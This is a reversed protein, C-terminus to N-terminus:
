LGNVNGKMIGIYSADNAVPLTVGVSNTIVPVSSKTITSTDASSDMFVWAMDPLSELGVAVKLIALADASTVRGDNNIDAAIFQYPSVEGSSNPNLGVAIKLAALADASTIPRTGADIAEAKSFVLHADGSSLNSEVSFSGDTNVSDSGQQQDNIDTIAVTINKISNGLWDALTGQISGGKAEAFGLTLSVVGNRQGDADNPGGDEILLRICTAGTNLGALYSSSSLAPCNGKTDVVSAITNLENEIFDGWQADVIRRMVVTSSLVQEMPVMTSFLTAVGTVPLEIEVDLISNYTYNSDAPGSAAIVEDLTLEFPSLAQRALNGMILSSGPESQYAMTIDSDGIINAEAYIDNSNSIGDNDADLPRPESTVEIVAERNFVEDTFDSDIVGVGLRYFGDVLSSPDFTVTKGSSVTSLTLTNDTYSWDYIHDGNVDKVGATVTVTGANQKITRTAVGNQVVYISVVPEVAEEVITISAKNFSSMTVDNDPQEITLTFEENGESATDARAEISVIAKRSDDVTIEYPATYDSFPKAVGYVNIQMTVPYTQAQGTLGAALDIIQGEAVRAHSAIYAQPHIILNQTKTTKNGALDEAVWTIIHTGALLRQTIDNTAKVETSLGDTALVEPLTVATYKGVANIVIDPLSSQKFQPPYDDENAKTGAIFEELNTKGDNDKDLDADSADLANLDNSVEYNDGIGDSDSDKTENANNPFVDEENLVGDGDLDDSSNAEALAINLTTRPTSMTGATLEYAQLTTTSYGTASAEIDAIGAPVLVIFAGNADTTTATTVGGVDLALSADEIGLYTSKDYLVGQVVSVPANNNNTAFNWTQTSATKAGKSDVAIVRWVYDKRDLLDAKADIVARTSTILEKSYAGPLGRFESFSSDDALELTYTVGDEDIDEAASWEFIVATKTSAENVPSLLDFAAPANNDTANKYVISRKPSSLQKTEKDIVFYFIEYAGSENLGTLEVYFKDKYPNLNSGPRLMFYQKYNTTLQETTVKEELVTSPPRVEILAYEVEKIDNATLTLKAKTETASLYVTDTVDVVTAPNAISNTDYNVGKGLILKSALNGDLTDNEIDNSGVGDGNDDILPHQVSDDFYKNYTGSSNSTGFTNESVYEETRENANAFAEKMTLGKKLEKMLEEVFYEGVRIGDPEMVGKYSEEDEAASSIIIRNEGGLMPLFAGSYCFGLIVSRPELIADADLKTELTTIWTNLDAPSLAEFPNLMFTGDTTGHDVFFFYMPAPNANVRDALAEIQEKLRAATTEYDVGIGSQDKDSINDGNADQETDHNFYIINEDTFGREILTDYIRQTSKNHSELGEENEIKGQVVIAYGASSGILLLQEATKASAYTSTGVYEAYTTWTGKKDFSIQNTKGIDVFSGAGTSDTEVQLTTKTGQPDTFYLNIVQGSLDAYDKLPDTLDVSVSLQGDYELSSATLSMELETYKAEEGATVNVYESAKDTKGQEDTVVLTIKKFGSVEFTFSPNIGEATQGDSTTWTYSVINNEKDESSSADASVTLPAIGDIKDLTIEATPATNPASVVITKETEATAGSDDKVTLNVTYTGPEPLVITANKGIAAQNGAIWRYSVIRGTSDSADLSVILPASGADPAMNFSASLTSDDALPKVFVSVDDSSSLGASDTVTLRFILEETSGVTPATFSPTISSDDDLTVLEGNTQLWTYSISDSPNPDASNNGNLTVTTGSDVTQDFSAKAVPPKNLDKVSLTVSDTSQEGENDTVTLEFTLQDALNTTPAYFSTKASSSNEITVTYGATQVWSYSTIDGDNDVSASGDLYATADQQIDRDVGAKAIPKINTTSSLAITGVDTQQQDNLGWCHVGGRSLTCTTDVGATIQAVNAAGSLSVQGYTDDGWCYWSGLEVSCSHNSGLALGYAMIGSGPNAQGQDNRGWCMVGKDTMACSHQSGSALARPNIMSPAQLQGYADDGWCTVAGNALACSHEAGLALDSINTLTPPSSQGYADDGWCQIGNEDVACAHKDGIDFATVNGLTPLNLQGSTNDGWCIPEEDSIACSADGGVILGTVNGLSPVDTQGHSNDGWCVVGNDDKVCTHARGSAIHYDPKLPDRGNDVEYGDLLTDHDTDDNNSQTGIELEQRASLGDEDLDLDVDSPDLPDYGNALEWDDLLGDGDDDNDANNGIGDGDTDYKENPDTPFPDANDGVGDGDSDFTENADYPFADLDDYVGDGDADNIWELAGAGKRAELVEVTLKFVRKGGVGDMAILTLPYIGVPTDSCVYFTNENGIGLLSMDGGEIIDNPVFTLQSHTDLGDAFEGMGHQACSNKNTIGDNGMGEEVRTIRVYSYKQQIDGVKHGYDKVLFLKAVEGYDNFINIQNQIEIGETTSLTLNQTADNLVKNFNTADFTQDLILDYSNNGDHLTFGGGSLGCCKKAEINTGSIDLPIERPVDNLAIHYYLGGSWAACDATSCVDLSVNGGSKRNTLVNISIYGIKSKGGVGDIATLMVRHIGVPTDSCVNLEAKGNPEILAKSGGVINNDSFVRINKLSDNFISEFSHRQCAEGDLTRTVIIDTHDIAFDEVRQGSDTILSYQLLQNGVKGQLDASYSVGSGYFAGDSSSAATNNALDDLFQFWNNSDVDQYWSDPQCAEAVSDSNAQQCDTKVNSITYDGNGNTVNFYLPTDKPPNLSFNDGLNNPVYNDYLGRYGNTIAAVYSVKGQSEFCYDNQCFDGSGNNIGGDNLFRISGGAVRETEVVITIPDLDIKGGMADTVTFTIQYTGAPTDSCNYIEFGGFRNLLDLEGGKILDDPHLSTNLGRTGEVMISDFDTWTCDYSDNEGTGVVPPNIIVKNYALKGKEARVFLNNPGYHILDHRYEIGQVDAGFEDTWNAYDGQALTILGDTMDNFYAEFNPSNTIDTNCAEWNAWADWEDIPDTVCNPDINTIQKRLGENLFSISTPAGQDSIVFSENVPIPFTKFGENLLYRYSVFGPRQYCYNNDCLHGFGKTSTIKNDFTLAAESYNGEVVEIYLRGVESRGGKGDIATMLVMQEGVPTNHCINLGKAGNYEFLARDGGTIFNNPYFAVPLSLAYNNAKAIEDYSINACGEIPRNIVIQNKSLYINSVDFEYPTEFTIALQLGNITGEFVGSYSRHENLIALKISGTQLQAKFEAMLDSEVPVIADVCSDLSTDNALCDPDVNSVQKVEGALEVQLVVPGSFDGALIGELDTRFESIENAPAFLYQVRYDSQFCFDNQCASGYGQTGLSAVTKTERVLRPGYEFHDWLEWNTYDEYVATPAYDYYYFGVARYTNGSKYFSVMRYQYGQNEDSWPIESYGLNGLFTLSTEYPLFKYFQGEGGWAEKSGGTYDTYKVSQGTGNEFLQQIEEFTAYRWGEYPKGPMMLQDVVEYELNSIDRNEKIIRTSEETTMWDLGTDTDTLFSGNDIIVAHAKLVCLMSLLLVLGITKFRVKILTHGFM